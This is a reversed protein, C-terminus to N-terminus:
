LYKHVMLNEELIGLTKTAKKVETELINKPLHKPVSEEATSFALYFVNKGEEILKSITGGCGFEGDDSM